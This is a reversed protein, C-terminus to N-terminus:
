DASVVNSSCRTKSLTPSANARNPRTLRTPKVTFSLIANTSAHFLCLFYPNLSIHMQSIIGYPFWSKIHKSTQLWFNQFLTGLHNRNHSRNAYNAPQGNSLFIKINELNSQNWKQVEHLHKSLRM